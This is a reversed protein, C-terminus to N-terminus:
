TTRRRLIVVLVTCFILKLDSLLRRASMYRLDMRVWEAFSVHTGGDVQWICTLGPTADQRHRQWRSCRAAEDCPLPRPGVLSMDGRLVNWLQPLEDLHSARLLRGVRTVRPDNRMKFAPGDQENRGRLDEKWSEADAIMSRFKFIVFPKGGMGSRQQRFFVPGPSTVRVLLALLAFLPSLVLLGTAAATLDLARKWWPLQQLFLPEMAQVPRSAVVGGLGTGLPVDGLDAGRDDSPEPEDSPYTYVQCLPPEIDARFSGCVDDAV